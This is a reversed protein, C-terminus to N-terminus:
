NRTKNVFRTHRLFTSTIESMTFCKPVIWVFTNDQDVIWADVYQQYQVCTVCTQSAM